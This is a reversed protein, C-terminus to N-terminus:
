VEKEIIENELSESAADGGEAVKVQVKESIDVAHSPSRLALLRTRGATILGRILSNPRSLDKIVAGVITAALSGTAIKGGRSGRNTAAGEKPARGGRRRFRASM